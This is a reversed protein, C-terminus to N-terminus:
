QRIPIEHCTSIMLTVEHEFKEPSNAAKSGLAIGFHVIITMNHRTESSVL